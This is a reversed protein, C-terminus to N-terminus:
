FDGHASRAPMTTARRITTTTATARPRDFLDAPGAVTTAGVVIAGAAWDGAVVACAGATAWGGTVVRSGTAGAGVVRAGVGGVVALEGGVVAAAGGTVTASATDSRPRHNAATVGCVQSATAGARSGRPTSSAAM